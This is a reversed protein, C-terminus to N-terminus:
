KKKIIKVVEYFDKPIEDSDIVALAEEPTVFPKAKNIYATFPLDGEKGSVTKFYLGKNLSRIFYRANSM